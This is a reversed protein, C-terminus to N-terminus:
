AGHEDAIRRVISQFYARAAEVKVKILEELTLDRQYLVSTVRLAPNIHDVYHLDPDEYGILDDPTPVLCYAVEFEPKEWLMMYARGQWEYGTDRGADSFAPFTDLSWSSKVDTIRRPQVIDCEGSLWENERRETNKVCETFNVSNYLEISAGEVLIGKDLYKSSVKKQYGYVFEKAMAEVFTKAGASLSKAKLPALVAKDEDTKKTKRSIAALEETLLAPDISQPETMISGLSHARFKM